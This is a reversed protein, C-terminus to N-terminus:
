SLVMYRKMKKLVATHSIGLRSAIERSSKCEQMAQRLLDKELNAIMEKLPRKGKDLVRKQAHTWVQPPLDFTEVCERENVIIMNEVLNILERVNGPWNYTRCCELSAPSFYKARNYRTNLRNLYFSILIPIDEKRDRLPPVYVPIVNLRHYLDLRFSGSESKLKLDRNTAAIVRVNVRIDSIGGLRRIYQDDLVNLLKGQSTLPLDGIEDLFITGGEAMEFLGPKGERKAGTFAGKDYGFLESEVLEPPLANCNIKVFRGPRQSLVHIHEAFLGKGVGTEGQLLVPISVPAIRKITDLISLVKKSRSILRGQPLPKREGSPVEDPHQAQAASFATARAFLVVKKLCRQRDFVPVLRVYIHKGNCIEDQGEVVCKRLFTEEVLSPYVLIGNRYLDDVARGLISQFPFGVLDAFAANIYIIRKEKDLLAIGDASATIISELQDKLEVADALTATAYSMDLFFLIVRTVVRQDILPATYVKLARGRYTLELSNQEKGIFGRFVSQQLAFSDVVESIRKTKIFLGFFEKARKNSEKIVEQCDLAICPFPVYDILWQVQAVEGSEFESGIEM